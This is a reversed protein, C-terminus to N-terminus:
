CRGVRAPGHLHLAAVDKDDPVGKEALTANSIPCGDRSVHLVRRLSGISRPETTVRVQIEWIIDRTCSVPYPRPGASWPTTPM